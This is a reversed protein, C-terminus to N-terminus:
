YGPNQKLNPDALLETNPIPFFQDNSNWGPGGKLPNVITMVSDVTGSRRLDLWRHGWEAFFEIQDEHLIATEVSQLDSAGNYITLGARQRIVNLDAIAGSLGGGVGNAQAEARILYQEALRLMMYYETVPTGTPGGKVKYKYAFYNVQDVTSVWDSKRNDGSEFASLIQPSLTIPNNSSNPGSTLIYTYGDPTNYGASVPQLQWIAENSNKLFVSNLDSVLSFNGSQIVTNSETYADSYDKEFLYVRALLASAAFSNPLTRETTTAGTPSVFGSPLLSEATKLDSVIQKYVDNPSAQSLKANIQYSPTTVLPVNQFINVLYFYCYARAFYSEGLLQNRLGASVTTSNTLNSIATNANYISNYLGNWFSTNNQASLTNTYVRSLVSGSGPYLTFEDAALGALSTFDNNGSPGRGFFDVSGAMNQFIGIVAATASTNNNYVNTSVLATAPPPTDVFKKCSAVISLILVGFIKFIYLDASNVHPRRNNINNKKM